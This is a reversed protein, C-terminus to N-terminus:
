VLLNTETVFFSILFYKVSVELCPKAVLQFKQLSIFGITSLEFYAFSRLPICEYYIKEYNRQIQFNTSPFVALPPTLGGGGLGQGRISCGQQHYCSKSSSSSNTFYSASYLYQQFSLGHNYRLYVEAISNMVANKFFM